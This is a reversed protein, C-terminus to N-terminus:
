KAAVFTLMFTTGIVRGELIRDRLSVDIRSFDSMGKILYIGLGTGPNTQNSGSGNSQIYDKITQPMGGANDEILLTVKGDSTCDACIYVDSGGHKFANDIINWVMEKALLNTEVMIETPIKVSARDDTLGYEVKVQTLAEEVIDNLHMPVLTSELKSLAVSIERMREIFLAADEIAAAAIRLIRDSSVGDHHIELAQNATNVYNRIDHQLVSSILNSIENQKLLSWQTLRMYLTLLSAGTMIVAAAQIVAALFSLPLLLLFGYLLGSIGWVAFGLVCFFGALGLNGELERLDSFVKFCSYALILEIPTYTFIVAINLLVGVLGIIGGILGMAIYTPWTRRFDTRGQVGDLMLLSSIGILALTIIDFPSTGASARLVGFLGGGCFLIWGLGLFQFKVSVSYRYLGGSVLSTFAVAALFFVIGMAANADLQM